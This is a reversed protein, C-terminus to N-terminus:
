YGFNEFHIKLGTTLFLKLLIYFTFINNLQLSFASTSKRCSFSVPINIIGYRNKILV